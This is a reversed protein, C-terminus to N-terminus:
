RSKRRRVKRDERETDRAAQVDGKVEYWASVLM